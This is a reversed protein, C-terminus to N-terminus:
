PIIERSLRNLVHRIKATMEFTLGSKEYDVAERKGPPSNHVVVVSRPQRRIVRINLGFYGDGILRIRIQKLFGELAEGLFGSVM